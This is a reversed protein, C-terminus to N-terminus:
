ACQALNLTSADHKMSKLSADITNIQNISQLMAYVYNHDSRQCVNIELIKIISLIDVHAINM